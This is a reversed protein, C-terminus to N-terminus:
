YSVEVLDLSSVSRDADGGGPSSLSSYIGERRCIRLTQWGLQRPALFDKSPNDGVYLLSAQGWGWFEQMALFARPHPKWYERGWRDTLIIREMRGALGLADIKRRQAEAPGDSILGFRFQGSWRELAAAADSCLAIAPTHSRYCSVMEAVTAVSPGLGMEVLLQDFVKPRFDTEFLAQMRLEPDFPCAYRERLWRAVAAFGSFAYARESYLTDDLDFVIARVGSFHVRDM